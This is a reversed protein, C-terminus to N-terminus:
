TQKYKTGCAPCVSWSLPFVLDCSECKLCDDKKVSFELGEELIKTIQSVESDKMDEAYSYGAATLDSKTVGEKSVPEAARRRAPPEEFPLDKEEEKEKVEEKKSSSDEEEMKSAEEDLETKIPNDNFDVFLTSPFSSEGMNEEASIDEELTDYYHTGMVTDFRKILNSFHAKIYKATTPKYIKTLNYLKYGFEAETIPTNLNSTDWDAVIASDIEKIKKDAKFSKYWIVANMNKARERTYKTKWVLVDYDFYLGETECVSNKFSFTERIAEDDERRAMNEYWSVPLGDQFFTIEEGEDNEKTKSSKAILLSQKEKKHWASQERDLVNFAYSRKFDWGPMKVSPSGNRTIHVFLEPDLEALRPEFEGTVENKKGDKKAKQYIQKLVNPHEPDGIIKRYKKEDDLCLTQDFVVPNYSTKVKRVTRPYDTGLFRLLKYSDENLTTHKLLNFFGYSNKKEDEEKQLEKTREEFQEKSRAILEERTM